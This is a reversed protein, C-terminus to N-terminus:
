GRDADRRSTHTVRPTREQFTKGVNIDGLNFISNVRGLLHARRRKCVASHGLPPPKVADKGTGVAYCAHPRTNFGDHTLEEWSSIYIMRPPQHLKFLLNNMDAQPIGTLEVLTRNTMSGHERLADLVVKSNGAGGKPRAM